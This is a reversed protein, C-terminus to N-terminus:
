NSQGENDEVKEEIPQYYPAPTKPSIPHRDGEGLRANGIKKFLLLLGYYYYCAM